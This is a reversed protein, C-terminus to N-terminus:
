QPGSPPTRRKKRRFAKPPIADEEVYGALKLLEDIIPRYVSNDVRAGYNEPYTEAPVQEELWRNEELLV